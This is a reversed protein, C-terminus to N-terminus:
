LRRPDTQPYGNFSTFATPGRATRYRFAGGGTMLTDLASLANWSGGANTTMRMAPTSGGLDSIIVRDPNNPEVDFVGVNAAGPMTLWTGGVATGQYRFLMGPLDGNCGGSKVFFNVTGARSAVQVGCANAPSSGAGLQKWVIPSATINTTIFVGSSTIVM